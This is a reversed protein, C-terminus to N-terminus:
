DGLFVDSRLISKDEFGADGVQWLLYDGAVNGYPDFNAEGSPGVYDVRAGDGIALALEPFAEAEGLRIGTSDGLDFLSDRIARGQARGAVEIALAALIVSDYAQASYSPPEAGFRAIYAARFGNYAGNLAHSPITGVVRSRLPLARMANDFASDRAGDGTLYRANVGAAVLDTDVANILSAGESGFTIFAVCVEDAAALTLGNVVQAAFSQAASQIEGLPPNDPSVFAGEAVVVGRRNLGGLNAGEYAARLSGAFGQGYGDNRAFIALHECLPVTLDASDFGNRALWALAASQIDDSPATRFFYGSRAGATTSLSASTACCSILPIESREASEIVALSQGSSEPGILVVAGQAILADAQAAAVAPVSQTDAAQLVVPQGDLLGGSANIQEVALQFAPALSEALPALDGGESRPHGMIIPTIAAPREVCGVCVVALGFWWVNNRMACRVQSTHAARIM